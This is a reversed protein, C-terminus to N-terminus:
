PSPKKSKVNIALTLFFILFGFHFVLYEINKLINSCGPKHSVPCPQEDQHLYGPCAAPRTLYKNNTYVDLVSYLLTTFFM